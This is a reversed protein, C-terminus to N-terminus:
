VTHLQVTFTNIGDKSEAFIKGSHEAVINKAISLGLGYSHNMQRTKDGRYFRKFINKLEAAPITEGENLLSLRCQNKSQKKLILKIESGKPSYKHANDLLIDIVQKIQESNGNISIDPEIESSFNQEKEFFLAEFPLLADSATESLNIVKFDKAISGNDIRALELLSEVLGRMQKSMTLINDTFRNKEEETKESQLLEANTMIVTLPTKLEHSADAIFQKQKDWAEEVPKVAWKALFFSIIFFLFFAALGISFSTVYLSELMDAEASIDTFIYSNGMPTKSRLFRLTTDPAIGSEEKCNEAHEFLANIYEEDSLDFFGNNEAILEGEPSVLLIFYPKSNLPEFKNDPMGHLIPPSAIDRMASISQQEINKKTLSIVTGLITGLMITVTIMFICIFKIKLRKLM